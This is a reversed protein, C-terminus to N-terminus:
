CPPLGLVVLRVVRQRFGLGVEVVVEVEEDDEVDISLTKGVNQLPVLSIM